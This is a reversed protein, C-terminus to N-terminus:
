EGSLDSCFKLSVSQLCLLRQASTVHVLGGTEHHSSTLNDVPPITTLAYEWRDISQLTKSEGSYYGASPRAEWYICTMSTNM